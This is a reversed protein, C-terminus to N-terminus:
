QWTPMIGFKESSENRETQSMFYAYFMGMMMESVSINRRTAEAAIDEYFYKDMEVMIKVKKYKM